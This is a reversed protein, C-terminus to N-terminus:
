CNCGGFKRVVEELECSFEGHCESLERSDSMLM